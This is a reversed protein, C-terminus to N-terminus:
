IRGGRYVVCSVEANYEWLYSLIKKVSLTVATGSRTSEKNATLWCIKSIAERINKGNTSYMEKVMSLLSCYFQIAPVRASEPIASIVKMSAEVLSEAPITIKLTNILSSAADRILARSDTLKVFIISLLDAIYTATIVAVFKEKNLLNNVIKTVEMMIKQHSDQLGILSFEVCSTVADGDSAIYEAIIEYAKLRNVWQPDSIMNRVHEISMEPASRMPIGKKKVVQKDDEPASPTPIELQIQDPKLANEDRLVRRAGNALLASSRTSPRVAASNSTLVISTPAGSSEDCPDTSDSALRM